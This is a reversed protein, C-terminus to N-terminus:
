SSLNLCLAPRVGGTRRVDDNTVAGTSMPVQAASTIGSRPSRLWYYSPSVGAIGVAKRANNDAFLVVNGHVNNALNPTGGSTLFVEEESLLFLKQDAL